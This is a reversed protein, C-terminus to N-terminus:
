SRRVQGPVRSQILWNVMLDSPEFDSDEFDHSKICKTVHTLTKKEQLHGPYHDDSPFYYIGSVIENTNDWCCNNNFM